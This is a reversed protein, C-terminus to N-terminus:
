ITPIGYLRWSVEPDRQKIQQMTSQVVERNGEDNQCDKCSCGNCFLGTKFCDCYLKLCKSNKCNCGKHQSPVQGGNISRRMASQPESVPQEQAKSEQPTKPEVAPSKNAAFHIAAAGYIHKMLDSAAGPYASVARQIAAAVAAAQQPVVTPQAIHPFLGLPTTQSPTETSTCSAALFDDAPNPPFTRGEAAMNQVALPTEPVPTTDAEAKLDVSGVSAEMEPQSNIMINRDFVLRRQSNGGRRRSGEVRRSNESGASGSVVASLSGSNEKGCQQPFLILTLM